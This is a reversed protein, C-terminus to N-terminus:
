LKNKKPKTVQKDQNNPIEQEMELYSIKKFIENTISENNNEDFYSSVIYTISKSSAEFFNMLDVLNKRSDENIIIKIWFNFDNCLPSIRMIDSEYYEQKLIRFDTESLKFNQIEAILNVNDKDKILVNAFLGCYSFDKYVERAINKKEENDVDEFFIQHLTPKHYGISKDYKLLNKLFVTYKKPPKIHFIDKIYFKTENGIILQESVEDIKKSLLPLSKIYVYQTKLFLHLFCVKYKIETLNDSNKFYDNSLFHEFKKTNEEILFGSNLISNLEYQKTSKATQNALKLFLLFKKLM